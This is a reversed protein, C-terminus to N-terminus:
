REHRNQYAHYARLVAAATQPNRGLLRDVLNKVRRMKVYAALYVRWAPSSWKRFFLLGSLVLFYTKKPNQRSTERHRVVAAPVVRCEFGAQGARLSYDADEYYLFFMEDLMGIATLAEKKILLACGTLFASPYSSLARERVTPAIHVTRMRAYQIRGKAFWVRDSEAELILPSLLGAEPRAAAAVMLATLAYPDAIADFNFLWCWEAGRSLALRMGSNMGKAFGENRQNKCYLFHPFNAQALALSGDTSANDIVIVEKAPYQLCKLSRLCALLCDKGNYNLVIIAVKPFPSM